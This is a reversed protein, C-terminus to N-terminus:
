TINFQLNSLAFKVGSKINFGSKGNPSKVAVQMGIQGNQTKKQAYKILCREGIIVRNSIVVGVGAHVQM